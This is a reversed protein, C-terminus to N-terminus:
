SNVRTTWRNLIGRAIWGTLSVRTRDRTQSPGVHRPAVAPAGCSGFGAYRLIRRGVLASCGFTAGARQLSLFGQCLLLSETCGFIFYIFLFKLFFWATLSYKSFKSLNESFLIYFHFFFALEWNQNLFHSPFFCLCLSYNNRLWPTTVELDNMQVSRYNRFM